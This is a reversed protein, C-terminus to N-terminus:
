ATKGTAIRWVEVPERVGKVELQGVEEWPVVEAARKVTGTAVVERGGATHCLRSALNVADGIATYELKQPSGINGVVVEGSALGIGTLVPALGRTAREANWADLKRQIAAAAEVARRQHEPVPFPAGFWCLMADGMFKDIVGDHEVVTQVLIAFYENLLAVVESAGLKETLATYGRIDSLLVTVERLEGKLEVDAGETLLRDAVQRTMYRGFMDRLRERERLGRAMGGMARALDGVEDERDDPLAVDYSGEGITRAANALRGIPRAVGRALWAAAGFAVGIGLVATMARRLDDAALKVLLDGIEEDAQVVAVVRGGEHIPAWASVWTGHADTYPGEAGEGSGDFSAKVAPRLALPDGVFPVENTMAVFRALDGDRRLIYMPSVISGLDKANRLTSALPAFGPDLASGSQVVSGVDRASLQPATMSVVVALRTRVREVVGNRAERHDSYSVFGVALVVAFAGGLGIRTALRGLLLHRLGKVVGLRAVQPVLLMLVFAFAGAFSGFALGMLRRSVYGGGPEDVEVLAVVRGDSAKIPAYGSVWYGHGDGYVGTRSTEGREFVPRMQDRLVYRDGSYPVENTMVVFRTGSGGPALTYMPSVLRHRDLTDRLVHRVQAFAPDDVSTIGAHADGDIAGAAESAVSELEQAKRQVDRSVVAYQGLFTAGGVVFGVAAAIKVNM